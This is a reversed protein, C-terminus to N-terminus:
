IAMEFEDKSVGCQPCDWDDPIESFPTGPVVGGEPDGIEPDYVYDCAMCNYKDM